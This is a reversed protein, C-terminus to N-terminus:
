GERALAITQYRDYDESEDPNYCLLLAAFSQAREILEVEHSMIAFDKCLSFRPAVAGVIRLSDEQDRQLLFSSPFTENGTREQGTVLQLPSGGEGKEIQLRQLLESLRVSYPATFIDVPVYVCTDLVYRDIMFMKSSREKKQLICFIHM